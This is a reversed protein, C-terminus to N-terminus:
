GILDGWVKLPIKSNYEFECNLGDIDKLHIFTSNDVDSSNSFFEVGIFGSNCYVKGSLEIPVAQVILYIAFLVFFGVLSIILIIQLYSKDGIIKKNERKM